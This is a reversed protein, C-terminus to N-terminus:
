LVGNQPHENSRTVLPWRNEVQEKAIDLQEQADAPLAKEAKIKRAAV